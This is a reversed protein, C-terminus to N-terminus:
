LYARDRTYGGPDYTSHCYLSHPLLPLGQISIWDLGTDM